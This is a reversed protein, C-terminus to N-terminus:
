LGGRISSQRAARLSSSFAAPSFPLGMYIAREVQALPLFENNTSFAAAHVLINRLVADTDITVSRTRAMVGGYITRTGGDEGSIFTISCILRESEAM